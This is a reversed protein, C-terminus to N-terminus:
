HLRLTISLAFFLNVSQYILFLYICMQLPSLKYVFFLLNDPVSRCKKRQNQTNNNNNNNYLLLKMNNNINFM